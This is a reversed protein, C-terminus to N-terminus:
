CSVLYLDFSKSCRKVFLCPDSVTRQFGGAILHASYAPYYALGADPLGYLYKKIRYTAGVPLNMTKAVAPPLTLYLPEKDSPYDQYLYAGVVDM